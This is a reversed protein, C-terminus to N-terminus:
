NSFEDIITKARISWTYKNEVENKANKSIKEKLEINNRLRGLSENWSIINDFEVILSNENHKLIEKLVSINSAIVPTGSIMYEFMKLPSTYKSINGQGGFVSIKDQIPLLLVDMQKLFSAVLNHHHHGHFTIKDFLEKEKFKKTWYIIDKQMGGLVHIHEDKKLYKALKLLVEVGKGKYLHGSYGINFLKEDILSSNYKYDQTPINAGDPLILYKRKIKYKNALYEYDVCLSKTIYIIGIINKSKYISHFIIKIFFNRNAEFDHLELVTKNGLFISFFAVMWSRTHIFNSNRSKFLSWLSFLINNLTKYEKNIKNFGVIDKSNSVSVIAKLDINNAKYASIMNTVHVANAAKSKLNSAAIYSVKM